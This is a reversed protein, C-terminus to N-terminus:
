RIRESTHTVPDARREGCAPSTPPASSAPPSGSDLWGSRQSRGSGSVRSNSASHRRPQGGSFIGTDLLAAISVLGVGLWSGLTQFAQLASPDSDQAAQTVNRGTIAGPEGGALQLMRESEEPAAAALRRAERVLARGSAYQEWCGKGGCGCERGSPEVNMHGVEAAIGFRGRYLRGDLVIGAGLGTGVTIMVLHEAGPKPGFRAEAWAAANADNEVVVPLGCRAQIAPGLEANRWALNAAFLITSRDVSVLGAAGLGVAEIPQEAMFDTVVGVILDETMAPDNAPTDVRTTALVKGENDVVGAAIKTGGVDVGVTLGM